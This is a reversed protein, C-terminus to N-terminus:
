ECLLKNFNLKFRRSIDLNSVDNVLQKRVNVSDIQCIQYSQIQRDLFDAVTRRVNGDDYQIKAILVFGAFFTTGLGLIIKSRSDLPTAAFVIGGTLTVGASITGIWWWINPDIVQCKKIKQRLEGYFKDIQEQTEDFQDDVLQRM